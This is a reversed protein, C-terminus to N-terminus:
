YIKFKSKNFHLTVNERHARTLFKSILFEHKLTVRLTKAESRKGDREIKSFMSLNYLNCFCTYVYIICEIICLNNYIDFIM